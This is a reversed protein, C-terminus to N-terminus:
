AIPSEGMLKERRALYRFLDGAEDGRQDRAERVVARGDVGEFRRRADAAEEAGELGHRADGPVGDLPGLQGRPHEVDEPGIHVEREGRELPPHALVSVSVM